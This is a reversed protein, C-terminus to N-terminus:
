GVHFVPLPNDQAYDRLARLTELCSGYSATGVTPEWSRYLEANKCFMEIAHNLHKVLEEGKMGNLSDWSDKVTGGFAHEYIKAVNYTEGIDPGVPETNGNGTDISFGFGWGM